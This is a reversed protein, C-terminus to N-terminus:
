HPGVSVLEGGDRTGLGCWVMTDIQDSLFRVHGDAFLWNAGGPHMSVATTSSFVDQASTENTCSPLNINMVHDYLNYARGGFIWISGKLPSAAPMVNTLNRCRHTFEPVSDAPPGRFFGFVTRLREVRLPTGVLLESMAVTTSLGDKVQALRVAQGDDFVGNSKIYLGQPGRGPRGDGLNGAYNTNPVGARADSPCLLFALAAYHCTANIGPQAGDIARHSMNLAHFLPAQDLQPLLAAHLSYHTQPTRGFPLIHHISEYAHLAIGFQKLHSSCQMRRASERASQVAPLLLALMLGILAIVVLVEVLSIGARDIYRNGSSGAGYRVLSM